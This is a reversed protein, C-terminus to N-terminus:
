TAGGMLRFGQPASPSGFYRARTWVGGSLAHWTGWTGNPNIVGDDAASPEFLFQSGSVIIYPYLAALSKWQKLVARMGTFVHFMQDFGFASGDGWKWSGTGWFKTNATAWPVVNAYIIVWARAWQAANGDWNWHGDQGSTKSGKAVTPPVMPSQGPPMPNTGGSYSYWRSNNNVIRIAPLVWAGQATAAMSASTLGAPMVWGLLALMIGAPRGSYPWRDLWQVLRAQYSAASEQYGQVIQRDVGAWQLADWPAISPNGVEAAYQAGAWIVDWLIAMSYGVRSGNPGQWSYDSISDWGDRFTYVTGLNSL